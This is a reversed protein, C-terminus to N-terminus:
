DDDRSKKKSNAKKKPKVKEGNIALVKHKPKAKEEEQGYEDVFAQIDDMRELILKAKGVQFRMASFSDSCDDSRHLDFTPKGSVEIVQSSSM